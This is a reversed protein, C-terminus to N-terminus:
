SGSSSKQERARRAKAKAAAVKAAKKCVESRCTTPIHGKYRIACFSWGCYPCRQDYIKHRRRAKILKGRIQGSFIPDRRYLEMAEAAKLRALELQPKRKAKTEAQRERRYAIVSMQERSPRVKDLNDKIAQQHEPYANEGNKRLVPILDASVLPTRRSFGFYCRYEEATIKHLRVVHVALQHYHQGCIHCKIRGDGDTELVGLPAKADPWTGEKPLQNWFEAVDAGCCSSSVCEPCYDCRHGQCVGSTPVSLPALPLSM